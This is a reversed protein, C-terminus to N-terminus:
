IDWTYVISPSGAIKLKGANPWINQMKETHYIQKILWQKDPSTNM